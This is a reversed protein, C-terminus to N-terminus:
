FDQHTIYLSIILTVKQRMGKHGKEKNSCPWKGPVSESRNIAPQQAVLVDLRRIFLPKRTFIGRKFNHTYFKKTHVLYFPLFLAQRRHQHRIPSALMLLPKSLSFSAPSPFLPSIFIFLKRRCSELAQFCFSFSVTNSEKVATGLANNSSDKCSSPWCRVYLVQQRLLLASYFPFAILTTACFSLSFISVLDRNPFRASAM